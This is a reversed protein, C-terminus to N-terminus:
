VIELDSILREMVKHIKNVDKLGAIIMKGSHFLLITCKINDENLHYILGPFQEPEYEVNELGSNTAIADLNLESGLNAAVVINSIEVERSLQANIGM